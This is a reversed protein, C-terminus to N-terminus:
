AAPRKTRVPAEAPVYEFNLALFRAFFYTEFAQEHSEIVEEMHERVVAEDARTPRDDAM